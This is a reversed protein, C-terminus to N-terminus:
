NAFNVTGSGASSGPMYNELIRRPQIFRRRQRRKANMSRVQYAEHARPEFPLASSQLEPPPKGIPPEFGDSSVLRILCRAAM